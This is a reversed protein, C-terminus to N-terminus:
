VARSSCCLTGGGLLGALSLASERVRQPLFVDSGIFRLIAGLLRGGFEEEKYGGIETSKFVFFEESSSTPGRYGLGRYMVMNRKHEQTGLGSSVWMELM